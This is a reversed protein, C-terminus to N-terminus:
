GSPQLLARCGARPRPFRAIERQCGGYKGKTVVGIRLARRAEKQKSWLNSHFNGIRELSQHTAMAGVLEDAAAATDVDDVLDVLAVLGALALDLLQESQHM